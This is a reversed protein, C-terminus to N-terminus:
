VADLAEVKARVIDMLSNVNATSKGLLLRTKDFDVGQGITLTHWLSRLESTTMEKVGRRNLEAVIKFRLDTSCKQLQSLIDPHHDKFVKLEQFDDSQKELFRYVTMRSVNMTRAVDTVGVGKAILENCKDPDLKSGKNARLKGCSKLAAEVARNTMLARAARSPNSYNAARAAKVPNGRFNEIFAEQKPTLKQSPTEKKRPM